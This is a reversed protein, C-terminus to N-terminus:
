RFPNMVIMIGVGCVVLAAAAAVDVDVDAVDAVQEWCCQWSLWWWLLMLRLMSSIWKCM